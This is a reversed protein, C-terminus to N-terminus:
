IRINNKGFENKAIISSTTELPESEGVSNVAKVRFLYEKRHVLRTVDHKPIMSMGADSWTGRSLDMKEIIYHLIPTGGSDKPPLWSLHCNEKTINSVDLPKQPPSPKDIVTVNAGASYIIQFNM